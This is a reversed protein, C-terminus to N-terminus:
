SMAKQISVLSLVQYALKVLLVRQIRKFQILWSFGNSRQRGGGQLKKWQIAITSLLFTFSCLLFLLDLFNIHYVLHSSKGM